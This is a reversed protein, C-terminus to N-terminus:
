QAKSLHSSRPSRRICDAEAFMPHEDKSQEKTAEDQIVDWHENMTWQHNLAPVMGVHDPPSIASLSQSLHHEPPITQQKTVDFQSLTPITAKM